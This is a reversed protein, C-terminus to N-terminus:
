QLPQLPQSPQSPTATLDDNEYAAEQLLCRQLPIDEWEWGPPGQEEQKITRRQPEQAARVAEQCARSM